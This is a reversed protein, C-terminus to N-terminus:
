FGIGTETIYMIGAGHVVQYSDWIIVAVEMTTSVFNLLRAFWAQEGPLSQRPNRYLFLLVPVLTRSSIFKCVNEDRM